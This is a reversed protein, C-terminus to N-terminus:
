NSKLQISVDDWASRFPLARKPDGSTPVTVHSFTVNTFSGSKPFLGYERRQNTISETLNFTLGAGTIEVKYKGLPINVINLSSYEVTKRIIFTKKEAAHLLSLPTLKVVFESGVRLSGQPSGFGTYLTWSLTLCGGFYNNSFRAGTALEDPNGQGYPMMVFNKVAGNPGSFSTMQGDAPYLGLSARNGEFDLAYGANYYYATGFPVEFEYYGKDNTVGFAPTSGGGVLSSSIGISANKLPRGYTDKVYGRVKNSKPQLAAFEPLSKRASGMVNVYTTTGDVTLTAESATLQDFPVEPIIKGPDDEGGSGDKDKKSCASLLTMALLGFLIKKKM